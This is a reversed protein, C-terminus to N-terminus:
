GGHDAPPPFNMTEPDKARKLAPPLYDVDILTKAGPLDHASQKSRMMAAVADIEVKQPVGGFGLPIKKDSFTGVDYSWGKLRKAYFDHIQKPSDMSLLFLDPLGSYKHWGEMARGEIREIKAGPYAPIGVDQATPVAFPKSLAAMAAEPTGPKPKPHKIVPAYPAGDGLATGAVALATALVLVSHRLLKM